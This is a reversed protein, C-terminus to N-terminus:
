PHTFSSGEHIHQVWRGATLEDCGRDCTGALPMDEEGRKRTARYQDAIHRPHDSARRCADGKVRPRLRCQVLAGSWCSRASTPTAACTADQM